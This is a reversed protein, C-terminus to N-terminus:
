HLRTIWVNTRQPKDTNKTSGGSSAAGGGGVGRLPAIHFKQGLVPCLVRLYEPAVGSM